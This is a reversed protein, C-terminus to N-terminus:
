ISIRRIGYEWQSVNNALYPMKQVELAAAVPDSASLSAIQQADRKALLHTANSSTSLGQGVAQSIAIFLSFLLLPSHLPVNLIHIYAKSM